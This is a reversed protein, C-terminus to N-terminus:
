PYLDKEYLTKTLSMDAGREFQGFIPCYNGRVFDHRRRGLMRRVSRGNGSSGIQAAAPLVVVM